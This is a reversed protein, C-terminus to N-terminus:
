PGAAPRAACAGTSARPGPPRSGTSRPLCSRACCTWRPSSAPSAGRARSSSPHIHRETMARALEAVTTEEDFSIAGPTMVEEVRTGDMVEYHMGVATTPEEEAAQFLPIGSSLGSRAHVLDTQSVVGIVQGERDVVPAGSICREAFIKALEQVTLYSRVTVVTKRMIDKAKM